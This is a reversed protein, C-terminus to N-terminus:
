GVTAMAPNTGGAAAATGTDLREGHQAELLENAPNANKESNAPSSVNAVNMQKIFATRRPNKVEALALITKRCSEQARFALRLYAEAAEPKGGAARAALVNFLTDLTRAQCALVAELGGLDGSQAKEAGDALLGSIATLDVAGFQGQSHAHITAAGLTHPLTCVQAMLEARTQGAKAKVELSDHNRETPM